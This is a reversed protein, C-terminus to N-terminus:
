ALLETNIGLRAISLRCLVNRHMPFGVLPIAVLTLTALSRVLRVAM